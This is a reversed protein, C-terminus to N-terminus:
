KFKGTGYLTAWTSFSKMIEEEMKDLEPDLSPLWDATFSATRQTVQM